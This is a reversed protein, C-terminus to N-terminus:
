NTLRRTTKTTDLNQNFVVVDQVSLAQLTQAVNQNGETHVSSGPVTELAQRGQPKFEGADSTGVDSVNSEEVKTLTKEWLSTVLEDVEM